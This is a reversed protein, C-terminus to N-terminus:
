RMGNISEAVAPSYNMAEQAIAPAQLQASMNEIAIAYQTQYLSSNNGSLGSAVGSMILAFTREANQTGHAKKM